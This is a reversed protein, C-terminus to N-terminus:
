ATKETREEELILRYLAYAEPLGTTFFLEWLMQSSM